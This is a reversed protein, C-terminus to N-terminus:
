GCGTKEAPERERRLRRAGREPTREALRAEHQGLERVRDLVALRAQEHREDRTLEAPTRRAVRQQVAREPAKLRDLAPELYRRRHGGDLRETVLAGGVFPRSEHLGN